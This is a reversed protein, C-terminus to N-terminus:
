NLARVVRDRGDFDQLVAVDKFGAQCFFAAVDAGQRWGIEVMLVGQPRLFAGAQAAIIRYAALGDGGPSLALHPDHDRVEPHLDGMEVATIYPPNSVILDFSGSVQEFWDSVMLQARDAVGLATANRQAVQLAAASLDVLVAAASPVEALLSLGICGTGTGLDLLRKPAPGSLAEAILCETEPRPDLVDETVEFRHGWFLRSGIIKAVPKRAIRLNLLAQHRSHDVDSLPDSEILMLRDPALGLVHALLPRADGPAIGAAKLQAGGWRLADGVMM